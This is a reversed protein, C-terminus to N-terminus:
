LWSYVAAIFIGLFGGVIVELPTHGQIEKVEQYDFGLRGSVARGLENLAKAQHGASRRVGLADRMVVMAFFFCVAFFTSDFGEKIAVTTGMSCVVAAHSSPMGGTRWIVTEILERFNRKKGASLFAFFVKTIQALIWSIFSAILIPNTVLNKM